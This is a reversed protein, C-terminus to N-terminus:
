FPWVTGNALLSRVLHAAGTENLHNDDYYYLGEPGEARCIPGDCFAATGELIEVFSERSLRELVLDSAAREKDSLTPEGNSPDSIWAGMWPHWQTLAKQRVPDAEHKPVAALVMVPVKRRQFAKASESWIALFQTRFTEMDAYGHPLGRADRWYARRLDDDPDNLYWPWRAAYIVGALGPERLVASHAEHSLADCPRSFVGLQEQASGIMPCEAFWYHRVALGRQAVALSLQHAIADSHSDGFLAIFPADASGYSCSYGYLTIAGRICEARMPNTDFRATMADLAPLPLRLPAGGTKLVHGSLLVVPLILAASIGLVKGFGIDRWGRLPAEFLRFFLLGLGVALIAKFVNALLGFDLGIYTLYVIVPYHALYLSYLRRGLFIAVRSGTARQLAISKPQLVLVALIGVLTPLTILGPSPAKDTLILVSSFILLLGGLIIGDNVKTSLTLPDSLLLAFIAGLLFQWLRTSFLSYSAGLSGPDASLSQAQYLSALAVLALVSIWVGRRLVLSPLVILPTVLYFWEELSLSWTHLLPASDGIVDFYSGLTLAYLHAQLLLTARASTALAYLDDPLLIAWGVVLTLLVTAALPIVIRRVRNALFQLVSGLVSGSTGQLSRCLSQTVLYGSIVFFTDIFLYAGPLGPLDAHGWIVAVIGIGRFWDLTDSRTARNSAM